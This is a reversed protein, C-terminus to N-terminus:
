NRRAPGPTKLELMKTDARTEQLLQHNLVLGAQAGLGPPGSMRLKQAQRPAFGAADLSVFGVVHSIGFRNPASRCFQPNRETVPAHIASQEARLNLSLLPTDVRLRLRVAM